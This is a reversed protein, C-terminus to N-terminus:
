EVFDHPKLSVLPYRRRLEVIRNFYESRVFEGRLLRQRMRRIEYRYLAADFADFELEVARDTEVYTVSRVLQVVGDKIITFTAGWSAAVLFLLLVAVWHTKV